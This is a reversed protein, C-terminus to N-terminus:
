ICALTIHIYNAHTKLPRATKIATRHPPTIRTTKPPIRRKGVSVFPIMKANWRGRDRPFYWIFGGPFFLLNCSFCKENWYRRFTLAGTQYATWVNLTEEELINKLSRRHRHNKLKLEFFLAEFPKADFIFWIRSTKM